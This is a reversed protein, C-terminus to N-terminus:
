RDNVSENGDGHNLPETDSHKLHKPLRPFLENNSVDNKEKKEDEQIQKSLEDTKKMRPNPSPRIVNENMELPFLKQLPRMIVTPKENHEAVKVEARRTISDKGAILKEIKGLRWKNMKQNENLVTTINNLKINSEKTKNGVQTSKLELLYDKRWCKWFSQLVQELEHKRLLAEERNNNFDHDSEYGEGDIPNLVRHRCYLHIPTLSEEIDDKGFCTLPQSNFVGKIELLVTCFEEYTVTCNRVCKRLCQKTSRILREFLVDWWLAKALNFRWIIGNRMNVVKLQDAKFTKGNDSLM